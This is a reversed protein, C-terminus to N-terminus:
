GSRGSGRKRVPAPEPAPAAVAEVTKRRRLLVFVLLGGLAGLGVVGAAILAIPPGGPDSPGAGSASTADAHPAAAASASALVAASAQAATAAAETQALTSTPAEAPASPSPPAVPAVTPAVASAPNGSLIPQPIPVPMVIQRKMYTRFAFDSKLDTTRSRWVNDTGRYIAMGGAIPNFKSGGLNCDENASILVAMRQGVTLHGSSMPFSVWANVNSAFGSGGGWYSGNPLGSANTGVLTLHVMTLEPQSPNGCYIHLSVSAMTGAIGVTFGQGSFSFPDAMGYLTEWNEQHQDLVPDLALVPPPRLGCVLLLGVSLALLRRKM